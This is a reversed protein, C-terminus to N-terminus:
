VQLKCTCNNNETLYVIAVRTLYLHLVKIFNLGAKMNSGLYSTDQILPQQRLVHELSICLRWHLPSFTDLLLYIPYSVRLFEETSRNTVSSPSTLSSTVFRSILRTIEAREAYGVRAKKRESCKM